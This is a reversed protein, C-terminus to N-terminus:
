FVIFQNQIIKGHVSVNYMEKQTWDILWYFKFIEKRM